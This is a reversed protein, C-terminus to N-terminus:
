SHTREAHYRLLIHLRMNIVACSADAADLTAKYSSQATDAQYRLMTVDAQYRFLTYDGSPLPAPSCGSPLPLLVPNCGCPQRATHPRRQTASYPQMRMTASCCTTEAQYRLLTADAHYRLLMHEGSPLPAPSSPIADYRDDRADEALM